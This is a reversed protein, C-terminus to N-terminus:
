PNGGQCLKNKYVFFVEKVVDSKPSVSIDQPINTFVNHQSVTNTYQFGYGGSKYQESLSFLPSIANHFKDRGRSKDNVDKFILVADNKISGKIYGTLLEIFRDRGEPESLSSFFKDIFILDFSNLHPIRTQLVDFYRITKEKIPTAQHFLDWQKYLEIGLYYFDISLGKDNIYKKFAYYDPSFGCGISLININEKNLGEIVGSVDLFHYTSSAYCPGYDMIYHALGKYCDYKEKGDSKYFHSSICDYCDVSDKFDPCLPMNNYLLDAFKLLDFM